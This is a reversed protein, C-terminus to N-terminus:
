DAGTLLGPLLPHHFPPMAMRASKIESRGYRAKCIRRAGKVTAALVKITRRAANRTTSGFIVLEVEFLIEPPEVATNQLPM